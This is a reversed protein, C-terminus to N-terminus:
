SQFSDRYFVNIGKWFVDYFDTAEQLKFQNVVVPDINYVLLQEIYKNITITTSQHDQTHKLDKVLCEPCLLRKECTDAVCFSTPASRHGEVSCKLSSFIKRLYKAVQNM